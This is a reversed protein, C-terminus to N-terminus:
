PKYVYGTYVTCLIIVRSERLYEKILVKSEHRLYKMIFRLNM